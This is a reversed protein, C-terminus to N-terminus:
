CEVELLRLHEGPGFMARLRARGAPDALDLRHVRGRPLTQYFWLHGAEALILGVHHHRLRGGQRRNFAVLVVAERAPRFRLAAWAAEEHLGFGRALATEGGDRPLGEPTLWRRAHGESLNMVLDWGFDWDAGQPAGPGSDGLRDRGAAAPDGKYGLLRRCAAVLFGSCNLGPTPLPTGPERFTVTRGEADEVADVVYPLGLLPALKATPAQAQALVPLVLGLGRARM